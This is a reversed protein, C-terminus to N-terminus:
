RLSSSKFGRFPRSSISFFFYPLVVIPTCFDGRFHSLSFLLILLIAWSQNDIRRRTQKNYSINYMEEIPASRLNDFGGQM